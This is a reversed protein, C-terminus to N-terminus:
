KAAKKVAEVDVTIPIENGVVLGGSDLAKNFKIGFDQRNIKTTASAGRRPNGYPDKIEPAPGTVELVVPKTVGHLTLDGTVKWKGDGDPEIKTSKFTITPFKAVDLFDPSKLHKDRMDSRTNISSADITAEIEVSTPDAGKATITGSFKDFEGRV